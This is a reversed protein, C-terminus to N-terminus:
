RGVAGDNSLEVTIGGGGCPRMADSGLDVRLFPTSKGLKKAVVTASVELFGEATVALRYRGRAPASISFRGDEEARVQAVVKGADNLLRVTTSALPRGKNGLLDYVRGAVNSGKLTPGDCVSVAPVSSSLVAATAWLWSRCFVVARM